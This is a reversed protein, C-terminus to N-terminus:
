RPGGSLVKTSATRYADDIMLATMASITLMEGWDEIVGLLSEVYVSGRAEQFIGHLADVLIGFAGFLLLLLLILVMRDRLSRDNTRFISFIFIGMLVGGTVIGYIMEWLHRISFPGIPQLHVYREGLLYADEHLGMADEFLLFLLLIALIGRQPSTRSVAVYLMVTVCTVLKLYQFIEPYGGDIELHFARDSFYGFNLALHFLLFLSDIILLALGFGVAFHTLQTLYEWRPLYNRWSTTM